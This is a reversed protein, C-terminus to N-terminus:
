DRFVADPDDLRLWRKAANFWVVGLIVVLTLSMLWPVPQWWGVLLVGGAAVVLSYAIPRFLEPFRNWDVLTRMVLTLAILGVAIGGAMLWATGAPTRDDAAHEVMSVMAAGTAAISMTLPLHAIFWKVLTTSEERPLRRGVFDFYSWWFAFGIMLGLMGTTVVVPTLNSGALGDVVGVVVEGLVIITFLGLREAMTDTREVGLSFSRESSRAVWGTYGLYFVVLVAWVLLRSEADLFISVGVTITSIIMGSLYRATIPGYEETDQRRVSYWFGTFLGLFVTYVVAFEEGTEGAAESTYVALLALVLMQAFVMTRTRGDERGHLDYYLSGNLWGIWILSFIVAFEGVARWSVDHALTHAARAVVVVYVLDYFLELFSVTRDEIVDGHPRPPQWFRRRFEGAM